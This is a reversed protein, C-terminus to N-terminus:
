EEDEEEEDLMFERGCKPCFVEGALSTNDTDFTFKHGCYPCTANM